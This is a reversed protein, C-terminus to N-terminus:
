IALVERVKTLMQKFSYPKLIFGAAGSETIERETETTYYGSTILIKADPNIELLKELCEKGGMEPMILDLIVLSIEDRKKAYLNLAEKGNIAILVKYGPRKLIRKTLDRVLDEDEVLLITEASEPEQANTVTRLTIRPLIIESSTPYGFLRPVVVKFSGPPL